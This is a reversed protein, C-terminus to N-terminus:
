SDVVFVRCVSQKFLLALQEGLWHSHQHVAAREPFSARRSLLFIRSERHMGLYTELNNNGNGVYINIISERKCYWEDM